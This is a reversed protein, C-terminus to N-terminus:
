SSLDLARRQLLSGHIDRLITQLQTRGSPLLLWPLLYAAAGVGLGAVLNAIVGSGSLFHRSLILSIGMVLSATIPIRIAAFFAGLSVPSDKFSFYLNPGLFVITSGVHAFAVGLAGLPLAVIILFTLLASYAAYLALLLRARGLTLVVSSSTAITPRLAVAIAFVAVFPIADVWKNGLLLLTIEESYVAIFVGLPMTVLAVFGAVRQYYRCYRGPESQLASLGPQSVSFIPANFQEVPALVLSQAQRYNGLDVAGFFKGVLVVDIKGAIAALVNTLTLDRGFSLFGSVAKPRLVISPIWGCYSWVGILYILSRAVERVVLAWYGVDIFALGIAICSSVLTALLRILALPGQKLQRSLLAEHQVTMGGWFLTTALLLTIVALRDDDYFWSIAPSLACFALALLGGFVVNVWFLSSIEPHTISKRQITATGLGFDKFIEAFGTLALVMAVLGFDEPVLLRALTVTAGIRVVFEVIGATAM